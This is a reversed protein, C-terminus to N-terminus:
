DQLKFAIRISCLGYDCDSTSITRQSDHRDGRRRTGPLRQFARNRCRRTRRQGASGLLARRCRGRHGAAERVGSLVAARRDHRRPARPVQRRRRERRTESRGQLEGDDCGQGAARVRRRPGTPAHGQTRHASRAFPQGGKAPSSTRPACNRRAPCSTRSTTRCMSSRSASRAVATPSSTGRVNTTTTSRTRWSAGARPRSPTRDAAASNRRHRVTQFSRAAEADARPDRDGRDRRAQPRRAGTGKGDGAARGRRFRRPQQRSPKRPIFRKGIDM